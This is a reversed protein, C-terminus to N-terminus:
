PTASGTATLHEGTFHVFVDDLSPHSVTLKRIRDRYRDLLADVSVAASLSLHLANDVVRGEVALFERLDAQLDPLADGEISLVETGISSQLREPQDYALLEGRHLIAVRDCREAEDMLHTTAVVTLDTGARLAEIRRWFEQRAIPDLGSTPEDLVLVRPRPLLAKALEVRRALGGSLSDVLDQDRGDLDMQDLVARVRDNLEKRPIGYLLGTARLNEVVTMKGDLAPRQFVVGLLARVAPANGLLDLDGVVVSGSTPRLATMLIRLLTSKGSGNPGLIAVM